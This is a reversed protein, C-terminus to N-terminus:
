ANTEGRELKELYTRLVKILKQHKSIITEYESHILSVDVGFNNIRNKGILRVFSFGSTLLKDFQNYLDEPIFPAYKHLMDRYLYTSSEVNIMLENERAKDEPGGLLALQIYICYDNCMKFSTESLNKCIEFKYDFQSNYIHNVRENLSNAKDIQKQLTSKQKEIGRNSITTYVALLLSIGIALLEMFNEKIFNIIAEM